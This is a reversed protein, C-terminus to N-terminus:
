PTPANKQLIAETIALAIDPDIHEVEARISETGATRNITLKVGRHRRIWDALGHALATTAGSTALVQVILGLDMAGENDKHRSVDLVGSVERLEDVLSRGSLAARTNEAEAVIRITYQEQPMHGRHEIRAQDLFPNTGMDCLVSKLRQWIACHSSRIIISSRSCQCGDLPVGSVGSPRSRNERLLNRMTFLFRAKSREPGTSGVPAESTHPMAHVHIPRPICKPCMVVPAVRGAGERCGLM